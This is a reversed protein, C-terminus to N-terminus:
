GQCRKIPEVAGFQARAAYVMKEILAPIQGKRGYQDPTERLLELWGFLIRDNDRSGDYKLLPRAKQGTLQVYSQIASYAERRQIAARLHREAVAKLAKVAEVEVISSPHNESASVVDCRWPYPRLWDEIDHLDDFETAHKQTLAKDKAAVPVINSGIILTQASSPTKLRKAASREALVLAQVTKTLTEADKEMVQWYPRLQNNAVYNANFVDRLRQQIPVGPQAAQHLKALIIDREGTSKVNAKMRAWALKSLEFAISPTPIINGLRDFIKNQVDHDYYLRPNESLAVSLPDGQGPKGADLESDIRQRLRRYAAVAWPNPKAPPAALASEPTGGAVLLSTSAGLTGLLLDRRSIVASEDPYGNREPNRRSV